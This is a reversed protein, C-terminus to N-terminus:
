ENQIVLKGKAIKDDRKTVYFYVGNPLRSNSNDLGNWRVFMKDTKIVTLTGTYVPKMNLTYIYLLSQESVGDPVPIAVSNHRSYNFPQPFPDGIVSPSVSPNEGEPTNNIIDTDMLLDPFISQFRAYYGPAILRGGAAPSSSIYYDCHTTAYPNADGNLYDANALLAFISDPSSKSSNVFLFVNNSVPETEMMVSKEPPAYNITIAPKLIPYLRADAFYKGPVTRYGTFFTWKYFNALESRFSASYGELTLSIAKLPTNTNINDWINKLIPLGFKDTLYFNFIALDYGSHRSFATGPSDFYSPLYFVYDNVYGFVFDEMSTSTLEYYYQDSSRYTYNGVQIGHHFEHAVTVKAANIGTTYNGTFDSNLVMYSTYHNDATTNELETYGYYGAISQIYIDYKDDGGAGNDPPPPPFGLYGVEFSFASDAAAALEAVNYTPKNTGKLDYHIRFFGSPSVISTDTVPRFLLSAIVSQQQPSFKNYNFRIGATIGFACKYKGANSSTIVPHALNGGSKIRTFENYLSDLNQAHLSASLFLFPILLVFKKM